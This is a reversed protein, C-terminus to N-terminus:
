CVRTFLAVYLCLTETFKHTHTPPHTHAHLHISSDVLSSTVPLYLFSYLLLSWSKYEDASTALIIVDFPHLHAPCPIPSFHMRRVPNSQLFLRQRSSLM